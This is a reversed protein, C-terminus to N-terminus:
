IRKVDKINRNFLLAILSSSLESPAFSCTPTEQKAITCLLVFVYTPVHLPLTTVQSMIFLSQASTHHYSCLLSCLAAADSGGWINTSLKPVEEGSFLYGFTQHVLRFIETGFNPHSRTYNSVKVVTSVV